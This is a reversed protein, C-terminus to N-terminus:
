FFFFLKIRKKKTMKDKHIHPDQQYEHLFAAKKVKSNGAV